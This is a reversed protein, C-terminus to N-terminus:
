SLKITQVLEHSAGPALSIAAAGVNGAEVCVFGDWYPGIDGVAPGKVPGPNWVVTNASGEKSVVLSRGWGPDSVVVVGDHQFIRDVEETITFPGSLVAGPAGSVKDFYDCGALGDLEVEGVSSVALYTHLAEEYNFQETGNNTVTLAVRFQAPAFQCSLEASFNGLGSAKGDLRHRVTLEGTTRLENVIEVREWNATRAFGHSPSRTGDVGAGFWPFVVPVGGRIAKGSEFDALPSLWLVPNQEPPTWRIAQAGLDLVAYDGRHHINVGPFDAAPM